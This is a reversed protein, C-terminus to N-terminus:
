SMALPHWLDSRLLLHLVRGLRRGVADDADARPDVSIQAAPVAQRFAHGASLRCDDAVCRHHDRVDGHQDACELKSHRRSRQDIGKHLQSSRCLSNIQQNAQYAFFSLGLSWLLPFINMVFLVAIAPSVLLGGYYKKRLANVVFAGAVMAAMFGVIWFSIAPPLAASAVISVVLGIVIALKWNDPAVTFLSPAPAIATASM